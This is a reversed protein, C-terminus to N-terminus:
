MKDYSVIVTSNVSVDIWMEHIKIAARDQGQPQTKNYAPGAQGASPPGIELSLDGDASASPTRGIIIGDMVYCIGTSGDKVQIAIQWAYIADATTPIRTGETALNIPTGATVAYSRNHQSM